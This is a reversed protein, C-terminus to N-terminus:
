FGLDRITGYMWVQQTLTRDLLVRSVTQLRLPAQRALPCFYGSSAQQPMYIRALFRIRIRVPVHLALHIDCIRISSAAHVVGERQRLKIM